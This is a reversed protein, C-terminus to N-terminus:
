LQFEWNRKEMVVGYEVPMATFHKWNIEIDAIKDYKVNKLKFM